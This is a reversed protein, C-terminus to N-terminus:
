TTRGTPSLAARVADAKAARDYVHSYVRRTVSSDEHGLQDAILEDDIGAAILRSAAAHRLEHFTLSKDLKADDRAAEFGRGTVNRHGLPTGVKSAFIPDTPKAYDSVVWLGRLEEKIDDPLFLTRRGAATKPPGYKAFITWQREVNLTGEEYSFDQWQLGLVEGLRLGLRETVRLLPTYNYGAIKRAGLKASSALLRTLEESTWEHAQKTEERQPREDDTLIAFPDTPALGRRVGLRMIQKCPKLYNLVAARGLPRKAVTRDIVHLGERELDRILKAIADADVGSVQLRGFRPLLVRDLAVRYDRRTRERLRPSKAQFWTEALEAFTHRRSTVREGRAMKSVVDARAAKAAEFDGDVTKFVLKGDSDRYAIEYAGSCSRYVGPAGKMKTRRKPTTTM